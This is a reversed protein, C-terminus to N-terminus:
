DVTIKVDARDDQEGPEDYVALVRVHVTEATITRGAPFRGGIPPKDASPYYLSLQAVPHGDQQFAGGFALVVRQGHVSYISPEPPTGNSSLSPALRYVGDEHQLPPITASGGVSSSCGALLVAAGVLAVVKM